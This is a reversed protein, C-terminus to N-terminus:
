FRFGLELSFSSGPKFSRLVQDRNFYKSTSTGGNYYSMDVTTDINQKYVISQNLLDKISLKLEAFKGIKKSVVFDVLHRPMEYVDPVDEWAHQQPTGVIQIRKGIVNYLLNVMLRSKDEDSYFIGANLIYPSQGAMPRTKETVKNTFSIESKILAGNLVVNLKELFGTSGLSKRIEAEV